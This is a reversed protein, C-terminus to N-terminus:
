LMLLSFRIFMLSFLSSPSCVKNVWRQCCYHAALNGSIGPFVDGRNLRSVHGSCTSWDKNQVSVTYSCFIKGLVCNGVFSPVDPNDPWVEPGGCTLPTPKSTHPCPPDSTETTTQGGRPKAIQEPPKVIVNGVNHKGRASCFTSSRRLVNFDNTGLVYDNHSDNASTDSSCELENSDNSILNDSASDDPINQAYPLSAVDVDTDKSIPSSQAGNWRGFIIVYFWLM